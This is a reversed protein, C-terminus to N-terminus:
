ANNDSDITDVLFNSEISPPSHSDTELYRDLTDSVAQKDHSAFSAKTGDTPLNTQTNSIQSGTVTARKDRLPKPMSM